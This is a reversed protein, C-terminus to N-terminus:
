NKVSLNLTTVPILSIRNHACQMAYEIELMAFGSVPDSHASCIPRLIPLVVHSYDFGYLYAM